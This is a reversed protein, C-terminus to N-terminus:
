QLGEVIAEALVAPVGAKVLKDYLRDFDMKELWADAQDEPIVAGAAPLKVEGPETKESTITISALTEKGGLLNIETKSVGDENEFVFELTPDLLAMVASGAADMGMGKLLDSAPSVELKGNNQGDKRSFDKLAITLIEKGEIEITYEGNVVEDKETGNGTIVLDDADFTYAYEDGDRITIYRVFDSDIKYKKGIVDHSDDVYLSIQLRDFNDEAELNNLETRLEDLYELFGEYVADADQIKGEDELYQAVDMIIQKVEADEELTDLVTKLVNKVEGFDLEVKLVTVKQKVGNIEVTETSKEADKLNEYILQSYKMVLEEVVEQTPLVDKMEADTLASTIAWAEQDVAFGQQLYQESMTLYALYMAGSEMDMIMDASSIQTDNISMALFVKGANGNLDRDVDLSINELWSLDVSEGSQAIADELFSVTQESLAIQASTESSGYIEGNGVRELYKGYASGIKEANEKAAQEEVFALYDDGSGFTKIALGRATPWFFYCAVAGVILVGAVIAAILWRKKKNKKPKEEFAPQAFTTEAASTEPQEVAPVQEEATEQQMEAVKAGCKQCFAADEKIQYGCKKCIM